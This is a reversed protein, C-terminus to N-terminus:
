TTESEEALARSIEQGQEHGAQPRMLAIILLACGTWRLAMPVWLLRQRLSQKLRSVNRVSSFGVAAKRRRMRRRVLWLVLPILALLAMLPSEFRLLGFNM